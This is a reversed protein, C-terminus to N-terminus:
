RESALWRRGSDELLLSGVQIAEIADELIKTQNLDSISMSAEVDDETDAQGGGVNTLVGGGGLLGHFSTTWGPIRSIPSGDTLISVHGALKRKEHSILSDQLLRSLIPKTSTLGIPPM